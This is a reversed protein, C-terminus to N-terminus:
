VVELGFEEYGGFGAAEEWRLFRSSVCVGVEGEPRVGALFEVPGAWDRAGRVRLYRM